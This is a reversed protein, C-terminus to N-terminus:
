NSARLKAVFFVGHKDKDSLIGATRLASFVGKQSMKEDPAIDNTDCWQAYCHMVDRGRVRLGSAPEYVEAAFTLAHNEDHRWMEVIKKSTEITQLKETKIADLGADLLESFIATRDAILRDLLGKDDDAGEFKKNFRVISFRRFFADTTDVTKPLTNTSFIHGAIPLFDVPDSYLKKATIRDGSIISKLVDSEAIQKGSPMENVLNIRVGILRHLYHEKEFHAPSIAAQADPPFLSAVLKLFTGKGNAGGGLLLACRQFMTARGLISVGVFQKLFTAKENADVGDDFISTLFGKLVESKLGPIYEFPMVHTCRHHKGLKEISVDSRLWGNKLPVGDIKKSLWGPDFVTRDKSYMNIAGNIQTDTMTNQVIEDKKNRAQCDRYLNAYSKLADREFQVWVSEKEDWAFGFDKVMVVTGLDELLAEAICQQSGLQMVRKLNPPNFLMIPDDKHNIENPDSPIVKPDSGIVRRDSGIVESLQRRLEGMGLEVHVDNFDAKDRVEFEPVIVFCGHKKAALRAVAEGPGKDAFIVIPAGCTKRLETIAADFNGCGFVCGVPAELARVLSAATSFGESLYVTDQFFHPEDRDNIWTVCGKVPANPFNKKTGDPSIRLLSSIKRENAFNIEVILDNGDLYCPSAGQIQKRVIYPHEDIQDNTANIVIERAQLTAIDRDLQTIEAIKEAQVRIAQIKQPTLESGDLTERFKITENTQWNWARGWVVGADDDVRLVYTADRRGNKETTDIRVPTKSDIIYDAPPAINIRKLEESFKYLVDSLVHVVLFLCNIKQPFV